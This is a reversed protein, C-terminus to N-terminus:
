QYASALVCGMEEDKTLAQILNLGCRSGVKESVKPDHWSKRLVATVKLYRKREIEEPDDDAKKGEKKEETESFDM